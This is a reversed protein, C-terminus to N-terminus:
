ASRLKMGVLGLLAAALLMFPAPVPVPSPGGGGGGGGTEGDVEEVTDPGGGPAPTFGGPTFGSGGGSSGGGGLTPGTPTSGPEYSAITDPVFGGDPGGTGICAGLLHGGGALDYHCVPVTAAGLCGKVDNQVTPLNSDAAQSLRVRHGGDRFDGDLIGPIYVQALTGDAAFAVFVKDTQAFFGTVSDLRALHLVGPADTM